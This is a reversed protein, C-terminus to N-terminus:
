SLRMHGVFVVMFMSCTLFEASEVCVIDVMFINIIIIIIFITFM